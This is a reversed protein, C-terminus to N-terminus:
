VSRGRVGAPRVAEKEVGLGYEFFNGMHFQASPHGAIAAKELWYISKRFNQATGEGNKFCLGLKFQGDADGQKAALAYWYAAKAFDQGVGAGNYYCDGITVRSPADGSFAKDFVKKVSLSIEEGSYLVGVGWFIAIFPM